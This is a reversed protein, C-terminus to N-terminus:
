IVLKICQGGGSLLNESAQNVFVDYGKQTLQTILKLWFEDDILQISNAKPILLIFNKLNLNIKACKQLVSKESQPPICM